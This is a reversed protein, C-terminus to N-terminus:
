NLFFYYTDFVNNKYHHVVVMVINNYCMRILKCFLFALEAYGKKKYIGQGSPNTNCIFFAKM